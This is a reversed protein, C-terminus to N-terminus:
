VEFASKRIRMRMRWTFVFPSERFMVQRLNKRLGDRLFGKEHVKGSRKQLFSLRSMKGGKQPSFPSLISSDSGSLRRV